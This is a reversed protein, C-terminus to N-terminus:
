FVSEAGPTDARRGGNILTNKVRESRIFYLALGGFLVIDRVVQWIPFPANPGAMAMSGLEILLSLVLLVSFIAIAMWRARKKETWVNWATFAVLLAVVVLVLGGIMNEQSSNPVLLSMVGSAGFGIANLLLIALAFALWGGIGRPGDFAATSTLHSGISESM